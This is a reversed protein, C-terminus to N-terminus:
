LYSEFRLLRENETLINQSNKTLSCAIDLLTEIEAKGLLQFVYTQTEDYWILINFNEETNGDFCYANHGNLTIISQISNDIDTMLNRSSATLYVYFYLTPETDHTYIVKKHNASDVLVTETYGEPIGALYWDCPKATTAASSDGPFRVRIHEEYWTTFCKVVAARVPPITMATGFTVLLALIVAAATRLAKFWVPRGYDAAYRLPDKLMRRVARQYRRSPPSVPIPHRMAECYQLYVADGLATALIKNLERETM